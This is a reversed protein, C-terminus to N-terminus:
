NISKYTRMLMATFQARTISLGPNFYDQKTIIGREALFQVAQYIEDSSKMDKFPYAQGTFTFGEPELSRALILAMQGRTLPNNPKFTGDKYGNIARQNHAALLSLYDAQLSKTVDHFPSQLSGAMKWQFLRNLMMTTHKRTIPSNPQFKGNEYGNILGIEAGKIIDAYAWNDNVDSFAIKETIEPHSVNIYNSDLINENKDIILSLIKSVKKKPQYDSFSIPNRLSLAPALYFKEENAFLILQEGALNASVGLIQQNLKNLPQGNNLSLWSLSSTDKTQVADQLNLLGYGTETDYGKISLDTASHILANRVQVVDYNPNKLKILAAAGAVFPTAMSTGTMNSYGNGLYTSYIDQGPASIDVEWGFNSSPVKTMSPSAGAVTIVGDYSAPYVKDTSMNWNGAATVIVIDKQVADAITEQLISTQGKGALSLNIVKAGAKMADKIALAIEFDDGNGRNNLVKLPLIDVNAGGLVGTGGINNNSCAALIGTVHTGHGFLDEPWKLDEVYDKGLSYLINNCFDEHISVGSDIVAVLLHNVGTVKKIVPNKGWPHKPEIKVQITHLATDRPLFVDLKQLEGENKTILKGTSGYISLTWPGEIFELEVSLRSLKEQNLQISFVSSSFPTEQYTFQEHGNTIMSGVVLNHATNFSPSVKDFHISNLGWQLSYFPDNVIPAVAVSKSYNPEIKLTQEKIQLLEAEDYQVKIIKGDQNLIHEQENAAFMEAKEESQFYLIWERKEDALASGAFLLSFLIFLTSIRAPM